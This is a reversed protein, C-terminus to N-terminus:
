FHIRKKKFCDKLHLIKLRGPLNPLPLFVFFFIGVSIVKFDDMIDLGSWWIALIQFFTALLKQLTNAFKDTYFQTGKKLSM